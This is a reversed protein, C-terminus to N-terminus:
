CSSDAGAQCYSGSEGDSATWVEYNNWSDPDGSCVIQGGSNVCGPYNVILTEDMTTETTYNKSVTTWFGPPPDLTIQGNITVGSACNVQLTAQARQTGDFGRGSGTCMTGAIPVLAAARPALRVLMKGTAPHKEMWIRALARSSSPTFARYEVGSKGNANHIHRVFLGPSVERWGSSRADGPSAIMLTALLVVASLMPVLKRM